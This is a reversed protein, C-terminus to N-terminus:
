GEIAFSMRNVRQTPLAVTLFAPGGWKEISGHVPMAIFHYVAVLTDSLASTVAQIVGFFSVLKAALGRLRFLAPAAILFAGQVCGILCHQRPTIPKRNILSLEM